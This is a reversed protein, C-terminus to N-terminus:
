LDVLMSIAGGGRNKIGPFETTINIEGESMEMVAFVAGICGQRNKGNWQHGSQGFLVPVTRKPM